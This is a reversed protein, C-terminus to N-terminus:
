RPCELTNWDLSFVGLDIIGATRTQPSPVAAKKEANIFNDLSTALVLKTRM